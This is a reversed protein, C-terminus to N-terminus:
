DDFYESADCHCNGKQKGGGRYMTIVANFEDETIKSRRELKNFPKRPTPM